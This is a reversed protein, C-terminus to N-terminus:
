LGLKDEIADELDSDHPTLNVYNEAFDITVAKTNGNDTKEAILENEKFETMRWGDEEGAEVIRAHVEKLPMAKFHVYNATKVDGDGTSTTSCATFLLTTLLFSLTLIFNKKM